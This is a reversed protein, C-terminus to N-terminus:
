VISYAEGQNNNHRSKSVVSISHTKDALALFVDCSYWLMVLIVGGAYYSIM